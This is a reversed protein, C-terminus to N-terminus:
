TGEKALRTRGSDTVVYTGCPMPEGDVTARFEERLWGRSIAETVARTDEWSMWVLAPRAAYVQLMRLAEAETADIRRRARWEIVCIRVLAMAQHHEMVGDQSGGSEGSWDARETLAAGTDRNGLTFAWHGDRYLFFAPVGDVMGEYQTPCAACTLTLRIGGDGM